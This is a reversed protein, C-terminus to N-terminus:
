MWRMIFMIADHEYVFTLSFGDKTYDLMVFNVGIEDCLWDYVEPYLTDVITKPTRGSRTHMLTITNQFPTFVPMPNAAYGLSKSLAAMSRNLSKGVENFSRAVENWVDLNINNYQWATLAESEVVKDMDDKTLTVRWGVEPIGEAHM